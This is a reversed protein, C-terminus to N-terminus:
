CFMAHLGLWKVYRLCLVYNPSKNVNHFMSSVYLIIKIDRRHYFRYKSQESLMEVSCHTFRILDIIALM